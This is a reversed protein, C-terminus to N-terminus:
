CVYVHMSMYVMYLCTRISTGLELGKMRSVQMTRHVLQPLNEIAKNQHVFAFRHFNTAESIKCQVTYVKSMSIKVSSLVTFNFVVVNKTYQRQINLLQKM